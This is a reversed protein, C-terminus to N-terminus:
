AARLRTTTTSDDTLMAGVSFAATANDDKYIVTNGNVDTVAIKNRLIWGLTRLRDLLSNANLSTADTFATNLANYADTQINTHEGSTLAYGTKDSVTGATVTPTAANLSTKMTATFDGATPANTLATVTALTGAPALRSSVDADLHAIRTDGLNTLGVGAVGLTTIIEDVDAGIETLTASDAPTPTSATCATTVSTKMTSTLDGSLSAVPTANNLSTKKLAGFDINAETVVNVGLQATSTSVAAGAIDVVDVKLLNNADLGAAQGGILKANVDMTGATGPTLIATGLLQTVNAPAVAAQPDRGAAVVNAVIGDFPDGSTATAHLAVPGLTGTDTANAAVKYWGNAIESVAGSPSGFSGGNKSITVTPSAGTLGTLHDATQVLFFLLAAETSSQLIDYPM